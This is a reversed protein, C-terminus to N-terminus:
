CMPKQISFVKDLKYKSIGGWSGICYGIHSKFLPNYLSMYESEPIFKRIRKIIVIASLLVDKLFDVQAEWSLEDDIVVGLFKVKTFKKLKFNSLKEIRARACTLRDSHSLNPRFHMYLSKTINVHLQNSSYKM